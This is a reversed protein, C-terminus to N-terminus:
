NLRFRCEYAIYQSYMIYKELVKNDFCHSIQNPSCLICNVSCDNYKFCSLANSADKLMGKLTFSYQLNCQFIAGFVYSLRYIGDDLKERMKEIILELVYLANEERNLSSNEHGIRLHGKFAIM